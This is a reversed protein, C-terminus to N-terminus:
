GAFGHAWSVQDALGADACLKFQHAMDVLDVYRFQVASGDPFMVVPEGHPADFAMEYLHGPAEECFPPSGNDKGISLLNNDNIGETHYVASFRVSPTWIYEGKRGLYDRESELRCVPVPYYTGDDAKIICTEGDGKISHIVGNKEHGWNTTFSCRGGVEVRLKRSLVKEVHEKVRRPLNPLPQCREDDVAVYEDGPAATDPLKLWMENDFYHNAHGANDLFVCKSGASVDNYRYLTFLLGGNIYERGHVFYSEAEARLGDIQWPTSTQPVRKEIFPTWMARDYEGAPIRLYPRETLNIGQHYKASPFPLEEILASAQESTIGRQYVSSLVVLAEEDPIRGSGTHHLRWLINSAETAIETDTLIRDRELGSGTEELYLSHSPYSATFPRGFLKYHMLKTDFAWQAEFYEVQEPGESVIRGYFRLEPVLNIPSNYACIGAFSWKGGKQTFTYYVDTTQAPRDFPEEYPIGLQLLGTYTPIISFNETWSDDIVHGMPLYDELSIGLRQWEDYTKRRVNFKIANRSQRIFECLAMIPLLELDRKETNNLDTVSRLGDYLFPQAAIIATHFSGDPAPLTMAVMEPRDCGDGPVYLMNQFINM